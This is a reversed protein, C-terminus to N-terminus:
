LVHRKKPTQKAQSSPSRRKKNEMRAAGRAPGGGDKLHGPRPPGVGVRGGDWSHRLCRQYRMHVPKYNWHYRLSLNPIKWLPKPHKRGHCVLTKTSFQLIGKARTAHTYACKSRFLTVNGGPKPLDPSSLQQSNRMWSLRGGGWLVNGPFSSFHIM